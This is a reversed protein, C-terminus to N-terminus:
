KCLNIGIEYQLLLKLYSTALSYKLLAFSEFVWSEIQNWSKSVIDVLELRYCKQKQSPMMLM